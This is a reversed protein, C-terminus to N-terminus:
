LLLVTKKNEFYDLSPIGQIFTINPFEKYWDQYQAYFWTISDPQPDFMAKDSILQKIFVTKGSGSPGAITARFPLKFPIISDMKGFKNKIEKNKHFKSNSKNFHISSILSLIFTAPFICLWLILLKNTTFKIEVTIEM